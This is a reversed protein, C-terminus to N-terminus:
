RGREIMRRAQDWAKQPCPVDRRSDYIVVDDEHILFYQLARDQVTLSQRGKRGVERFYVTVAQGDRGWPEPEDVAFRKAEVTKCGDILCHRIITARQGLLQPM